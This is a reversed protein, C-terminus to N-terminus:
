TPMRALRRMVLCGISFGTIATMLISQGLPEDVLPNLYGPRLTLVGLTVVFPMAVLITASLRVEATLARVKAQLIFRERVTGAINELIEVLNGGTERQLLVSSVFLRLDFSRPNRTSLLELCVRMDRGLNHERHVKSFEVAIPDPLEDACVRLSDSLGHGARLTRSILDLADPLQEAIAEARKQAQRRLIFLPIAGLALGTVVLPGGFILSTVVAGGLAFLGARTLVASVTEETGAQFIADEIYKGVPGLRVALSDRQRARFLAEETTEGAVTGLRRALARQREAKRAELGWYMLGATAFVGTFVIVAILLLLM